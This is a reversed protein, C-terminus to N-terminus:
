IVLSRQSRVSIFSNSFCLSVHDRDKPINSVGRLVSVNWPSIVVRRENRMAVYSTVIRGLVIEERTPVPVVSMFSRQAVEKTKSYRSTKSKCRCNPLIREKGFNLPLDANRYQFIPRECVEKSVGSLRVAADSAAPRQGDRLTTPTKHWAKHTVSM